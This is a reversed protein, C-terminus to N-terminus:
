KEIMHYFKQMNLREISRNFSYFFNINETDFLWEKIERTIDNGNMDRLIMHYNDEYLALTLKGGINKKIENLNLLELLPKRPVIEDIAPIVILTKNNPSKLYNRADNYSNNMLEVIGNMSRLTPEHIFYEDKSLELLLDKNNSPKVSVYSSGRLKYNPFIRSLTKLFFSKIKNRESFNWIAPAILIVGDVRINYRQITSLVIAGGMSEGMIFVKVGERREKIKELIYNLDQTHIELPYWDGKDKNGGFGRLDFTYTSIGFKSLHTAPIKFSNSYDNYGHVAIIIAKEESTSKWSKITFGYEESKTYMDLNYDNNIVSCSNILVM